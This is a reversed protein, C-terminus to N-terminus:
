SYLGGNLHYVQGSSYAGTEALLYAVLGGLEVITGFRAAPIRQRIREKLEDNLTEILGYQFYGLAIAAVVISKPALELALGRSFGLVAAKAACYHSAGVAGAYAVVSSINIIRGGGRERMAPVFERCSLFTTLLNQDLVQRFEASSLKWSMKNTSGGALNIVAYPPGFRREICERLGTVQREDTLDACFLREAPDIGQRDLVQALEERRTRYQCVVNRWNGCLLYETLARGIGGSAGTILILRDTEM